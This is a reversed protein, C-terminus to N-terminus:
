ERQTAKEVVRDFVCIRETNRKEERKAQQKKKQKQTHTNTYDINYTQQLLESQYNTCNKPVETEGSQASNADDDDDDDSNKVVEEYDDLWIHLQNRERGGETHRDGGNWGWSEKEVVWLAKPLM